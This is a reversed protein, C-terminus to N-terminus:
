KNTQNYSELCIQSVIKFVNQKVTDAGRLQSNEAFMFKMKHNRACGQTVIIWWKPWVYAEEKINEM